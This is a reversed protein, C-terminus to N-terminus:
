YQTARSPGAPRAVLDVLRRVLNAHKHADHAGLDGEFAGALLVNAVVDWLNRRRDLYPTEWTPFHM